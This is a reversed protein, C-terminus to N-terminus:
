ENSLAEKQRKAYRKKCSERNCARCERWGTAKRVSLNDGSYPHGHPCHTKELRRKVSAKNARLCVERPQALAMERMDMRGKHIADHINDKQTGLFLHDPRVCNRTDCRHLVCMGSQIAGQTLEWAVRHARQAKGIYRFVGYGNPAM